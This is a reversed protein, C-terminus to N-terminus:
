CPDSLGLFNSYIGELASCAESPGSSHLRSLSSSHSVARLDDSDLSYFPRRNGVPFSWIIKYRQPCSTSLQNWLICTSRTYLKQELGGLRSVIRHKPNSSQNSLPISLQNSSQISESRERPNTLHTLELQAQTSLRRSLCISLISHLRGSNASRKQAEKMCGNM